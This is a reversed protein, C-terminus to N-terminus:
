RATAPLTDREADRILRLGDAPLPCAVYPAKVYETKRIIRTKEQKAALDAQQQAFLAGTAREDALQKTYAADKAQMEAIHAKAQRLDHKDANADCWKWAVLCGLAFAAALIALKWYPTM